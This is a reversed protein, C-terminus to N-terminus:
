TRRTALLINLTEQVATLGFIGPLCPFSGIPTEATKRSSELNGDVPTEKSYIAHIGSEIGERKLGQRIKKAVPCHTTESIDGARVLQSNLRTSTGMVSTIIPIHNEVSWKLLSIKAPIDDICDILADCTNIGFSDINDERIADTFTHVLCNNNIERIRARAVDTKYLGITSSLAYLQRNINHEEVIDFDILTLEGISARALAEAVYGGVGGIGAVSVHSRSLIDM